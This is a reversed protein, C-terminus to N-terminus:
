RCSLVEANTGEIALGAKMCAITHAEVIDRGVMKEGGVGAGKNIARAIAGMGVGVSQSVRGTWRAADSVPEPMLGSFRLRTNSGNKVVLSTPM